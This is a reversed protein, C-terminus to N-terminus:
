VRAFEIISLFINRLPNKTSTIFRLASEDNYMRFRLIALVNLAYIDEMSTGYLKEISSFPFHLLLNLRECAKKNGNLALKVNETVAGGIM